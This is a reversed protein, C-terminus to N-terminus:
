ACPAMEYIDMERERMTATVAPNEAAIEFVTNLRTIELVQRVLRTVNMLKFEIGRAQTYERLKLLVGLGGADIRSVRCLDLVVASTDSLSQVANQLVGTNGNVIQGRLRLITVNGLNETHIKLM